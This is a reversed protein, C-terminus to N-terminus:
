GAKKVKRDKPFVQYHTQKEEEMTYTKFVFSKLDGIFRELEGKTCRTEVDALMHTLGTQLENMAMIVHHVRQSIVDDRSLMGMMNLLVGQLDDDLTEMAEMHKSFLGASRRMKERLEDDQVAATVTPADAAGVAGSSAAELIRNVEDQVSDMSKKTEDDPNTYTNVLVENAKRKKEATANSIQNIGEMVGEDTERMTAHIDQLHHELLDTYNKMFTILTRTANKDITPM